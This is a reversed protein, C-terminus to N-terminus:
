HKVKLKEYKDDMIAAMRELYSEDMMTFSDIKLGSSLEVEVSPREASMQMMADMLASQKLMEDATPPIYKKGETAEYYHPYCYLHPAGDVWKYIFDGSKDKKKTRVQNIFCDPKSQCGAVRCPIAWDGGGGSSASFLIMMWHNLQSWGSEYYEHESGRIPRAKPDRWDYKPFERYKNWLYKWAGYLPTKEKWDRM